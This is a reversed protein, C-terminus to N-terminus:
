VWETNTWVCSCAHISQMHQMNLMKRRKRKNKKTSCVWARVNLKTGQDRDTGQKTLVGLSRNQFIEEREKNGSKTQKIIWKHKEGNKKRNIERKLCEKHERSNNKNNQMLYDWLSVLSSQLELLSDESVCDTLPATLAVAAPKWYFAAAPTIPLRRVTQGWEASVCISSHEQLPCWVDCTLYLLM